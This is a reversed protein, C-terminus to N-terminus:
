GVVFGLYKTEKQGLTSKCSNAMRLEGFVVQLDELDQQKNNLFILVDDIYAAVRSQYIALTQDM